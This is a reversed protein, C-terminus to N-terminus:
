CILLVGDGINGVDCGLLEVTGDLGVDVSCQINGKESCIMKLVLVM